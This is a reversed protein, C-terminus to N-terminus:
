ELENIRRILGSGVPEHDSNVTALMTFSSFSGDCDLDGVARSYFSDYYPFVLQDSRFWYAYYHSEPMGFHINVFVPVDWAIPYPECKENNGGAACCNPDSFPGMWGIVNIHPYEAQLPQMTTADGYRPDTYYQRAGDYMKRVAARAETTKAKRTYKVFAPVATAALVGIIAVSVMLEIL